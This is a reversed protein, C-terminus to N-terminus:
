MLDADHQDSDSLLWIMKKNGETVLRKRPFLQLLIEFYKAFRKIRSAVLIEFTLLTVVREFDGNITQCVEHQQKEGSSVRGFLCIFSFIETDAFCSVSSCGEHHRGDSIM